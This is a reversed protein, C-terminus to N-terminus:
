KILQLLHEDIWKDKRWRWQKRTGTRVFGKNLFLRENSEMDEPVFCYLQHMNITNFAYDILLELAETAYGKNRFEDSVLIGIEARRNLPDFDFLDIAGVAHEPQVNLIIMLRLQKSTYIDHSNLIYQDIDFRSFPATTNSVRWINVDNEWRYLTDSDDPELARLSVNKGIM